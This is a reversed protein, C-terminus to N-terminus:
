PLRIMFHCLLWHSKLAKLPPAQWAGECLVEPKTQTMASSSPTVKLSLAVEWQVQGRRTNWDKGSTGTSPNPVHYLPLILFASLPGPFISM